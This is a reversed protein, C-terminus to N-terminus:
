NVGALPGAAGDLCRCHREAFGFTVSQGKQLRGSDLHGVKAVISRDGAIALVIRFHDGVYTVEAVRAPWCQGSEVRDAAVVVREPRISLTVRDGTAATGGAVADITGWGEVEVGVSGNGARVVRGPILNNDGIFSAVFANAPQEYIADPPALQQIVGDNFVAVRDSMVLAETQDHTVYITTIGFQEHIRKIEYQMAERLQKDLAGLPEDMLVLEPNFVLARAVAVRQRQGGSLEAPRRDIFGDLRMMGLIKQVREVRESRSVGRVELPYAINQGVTMHPFLAYSQFVVGIGRKHPPIRSVPRDGVFIEGSTISQFGAIMQLCTTKGSGSPGLMTLFEGKAVGFSVGKVVQTVGDYSKEVNEFRVFDRNDIM